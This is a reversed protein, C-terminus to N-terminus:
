GSISEYTVKILNKIATNVRQDDLLYLIPLISLLENFTKDSSMNFTMGQSEMEFYNLLRKGVMRDKYEDPFNKLLYISMGRLRNGINGEVNGVVGLIVYFDTAEVLSLQIHHRGALNHQIFDAAMQLHRKNVMKGDAASIKVM